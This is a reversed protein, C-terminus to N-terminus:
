TSGIFPSMFPVLRQGRASEVLPHILLTRFDFAGAVEGRDTKDGENM